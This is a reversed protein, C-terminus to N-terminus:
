IHILSLVFIRDPFLRMMQEVNQAVVAHSSRSANGGRFYRLADNAAQPGDLSVQVFINEHDSIFQLIKDTLITGNTYIKFNQNLNKRKGIDKMLDVFERIRDFAMLPEGGYFELLFPGDERAHAEIFAACNEM